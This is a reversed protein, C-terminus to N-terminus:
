QCRNECQLRGKVKGVTAQLRSYFEEKVEEDADNIPAYCQIVNLKIRRDKTKFQATIIRSSIPEWSILAKQAEMSLMIGVGETHHANAESHGSYLILEGTSLKSQGAQIWRTECLGLVKLGYNEMERAITASKAAENM